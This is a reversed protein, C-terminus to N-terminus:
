GGFEIPENWVWKNGAWKIGEEVPCAGHLSLEDLTGDALQSYFIIVKGRQPKVKLGKTCDGFDHPSPAGNWRPFVTHGGQEVDSFYCFVTALRNRRGNRIMHLTGPDQTYYIPNFYDHHAVYHETKGYRLVQVHEQHSSPIRVLSATRDDIDQLISDGRSGLFTSQSTRFESAEKGQDADTLSVSSYRMNPTATQQIYDCEATSLFGEVSLVLPTLSLTELIATTTTSTQSDVDKPKASPMISYLDVHRKYGVHVGPWVWQGGEMLLVMGLQELVRPISLRKGRLPVDGPAVETIVKQGLTDFLAWPQHLADTTRLQLHDQLTQSIMTWTISSSSSKLTVTTNRGIQSGQFMQLSLVQQPQQSQQPKTVCIVHMGPVSNVHLFHSLTEPTCTVRPNTTTTTTTTTMQSPITDQPSQQLLNSVVQHVNMVWQGINNNNNNNTTPSAAQFIPPTLIGIGLSLCGMIMCGLLFPTSMSSSSSSMTTKTHNHNNGNIKSRQSNSSGGSGTTTTTAANSGKKKKTKGGM